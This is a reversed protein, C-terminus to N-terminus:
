GLNYYLIVPHLQWFILNTSSSVKLINKEVFPLKSLEYKEARRELLGRLTTNKVDKEKLM